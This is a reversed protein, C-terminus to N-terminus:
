VNINLRSRWEWEKERWRCLYAAAFSYLLYDTSCFNMLQIPILNKKNFTNGIGKWIIVMLWRGSERTILMKFSKVRKMPWHTGGPQYNWIFIWIETDSIRHIWYKCHVLLKNSEGNSNDSDLCIFIFQNGSYLGLVSCYLLFNM